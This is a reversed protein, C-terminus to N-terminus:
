EIDTTIEKYIQELSILDFAELQNTAFLINHFKNSLDKIDNKNVIFVKISNLHEYNKIIYNKYEPSTQQINFLICDYNSPILNGEILKENEIIEILLINKSVKIIM